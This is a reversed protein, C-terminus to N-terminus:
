QQLKQMAYSQVAAATLQTAFSRQTAAIQMKKNHTTCYKLNKECLQTM